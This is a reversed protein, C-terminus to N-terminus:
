AAKLEAWSHGITAEFVLPVRLTVINAFVDSMQYRVEEALMPPCEYTAEDHVQMLVKVLGRWQEKEITKDFSIMAMKIIDAASGQIPHNIAAREADGRIKNSEDNITPFWRRRGYLTEAYGYKRVFRKLETQWEKVRPYTEYYLRILEEAREKTLGFRVVAGHVSLGYNVGFNFNKAIGRQGDEVDVLPVRFMRSATRAHFDEGSLFDAIMTEDETIHATIRMELQSYDGGVLVLSTPSM